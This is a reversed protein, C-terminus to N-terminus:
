TKDQGSSISFGERSEALRERAVADVLAVRGEDGTFDDRGLGDVCRQRVLRPVLALDFRAEVLALAFAEACSGCQRFDEGAFCAALVGEDLDEGGARPAVLDANMERGESMGEDTIGEVAAGLSAWPVQEM